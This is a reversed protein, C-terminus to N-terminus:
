KGSLSIVATEFDARLCSPLARILVLAAQSAKSSPKSRFPKAVKYAIDSAELLALRLPMALDVRDRESILERWYSEIAALIQETEGESPKVGKKRRSLVTRLRHTDWRALHQDLLNMRRPDQGVQVLKAWDNDGLIRRCSEELEARILSSPNAHETLEACRMLAAKLVYSCNFTQITETGPIRPRPM